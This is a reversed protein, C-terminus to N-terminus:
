GTDGHGGQLLQAQQFHVEQAQPVQRHDVIGFLHDALCYGSKSISLTGMSSAAAKLISLRPSVCQAHELKFRRAHAMDDGLRPGSDM